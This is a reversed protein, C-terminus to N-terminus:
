GAAVTASKRVATRVPPVPVSRYVIKSRGAADRRKKLSRIAITGGSLDVRAPTIEL